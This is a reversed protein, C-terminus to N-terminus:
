REGAFRARYRQPLDDFTYTAHAIVIGSAGSVLMANHGEQIRGQRMADHIALFHSTTSTNGYHDASCLTIDPLAGGLYRGVARVGNEIARVSVQHPIIHQLDDLTWGSADLARKFYAPFHENGKRQLGRAKTVLIGGPGRRSPRSYCYHDHRAGTVLEIFHFGFHPDPSRDLVLAAGGDGLTLAALQGDFSHRLERAATAALPLNQEGSVVLGCRAMGSRIMGQLVLIGTFMGACANVVDFVRANGAGIAARIRVATAPELHFENERNHKSISTCVIVDLEEARYRSMSLAQRAAKIGLDVAYEGVAVRRERIGTIRELDWRPRRRCSALLAEMTLIKDPLYVGLSEIRINGGPIAAAVAPSTTNNM